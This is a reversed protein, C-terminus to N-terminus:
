LEQRALQREVADVPVTEGTWVSALRAEERGSKGARGRGGLEGIGACAAM